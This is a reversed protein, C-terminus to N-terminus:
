AEIYGVRGCLAHTCRPPSNTTLSRGQAKTQHGKNSTVGKGKNASTQRGNKGEVPINTPCDKKGHGM